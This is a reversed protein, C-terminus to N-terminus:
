MADLFDQLTYGAKKIQSLLLGKKVDRNGHIPISILSPHGDKKLIAHSGSTRVEHFGLKKFVKKATNGDVSPTESM